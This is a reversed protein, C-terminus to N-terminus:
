RKNKKHHKVKCTNIGLLAYIGCFQISSTVVMVLGLVLVIWKLTGDISGSLGLILAIVGIIIRLFRDGNGINKKM